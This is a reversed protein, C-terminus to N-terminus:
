KSKLALKLVEIVADDVKGPILEKIKDLLVASDVTLSLSGSAGELTGVLAIVLNGNVLDVELKGNKGLEKDVLEM